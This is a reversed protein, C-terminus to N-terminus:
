SEGGDVFDPDVLTIEALERVAPLSFAFDFDDYQPSILIEKVWDYTQFGDATVFQGTHENYGIVVM